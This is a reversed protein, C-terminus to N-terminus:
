PMKGEKGPFMQKSLLRISNETQAPRGGKKKAKGKLDEWFIRRNGPAGAELRLARVMAKQEEPTRKAFNDLAGRFQDETLQAVKFDEQQEATLNAMAAKESERRNREAEQRAKQAVSDAEKQRREAEMKERREIAQCVAAQVTESCDFWGYGAATKAGLGFSSLGGALWVRAQDLPKQRCNRLPLLAFAFVQGAAVTPFIVPIPPETDTAVDLIGAYYDPHHCTLVDLELLGLQHLDLPLGEADANVSYAPLFAVSGAFNPLDLWPEDPHGSKRGAHLSSLLDAALPRVREWSVGEGCGFEFDSLLEGPKGIASRKRGQRWDTDGWGFILAADALLRALENANAGGERKEVLSQVAMRRACGKVASGPIYPLGFRDLCLGANEMVAGAMNVMLRSRLQAYFLQGKGGSTLQTLWKCRFESASAVAAKGLLAKFWDRRPQQETTDKAGPDAFRDMFLSRSECREAKLGLVSRTDTPMLISM